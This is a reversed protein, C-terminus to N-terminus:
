QYMLICTYMTAVYMRTLSGQRKGSLFVLIIKRVVSFCIDPKSTAEDEVQENLTIINLINEM